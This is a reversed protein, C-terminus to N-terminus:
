RSSLLQRKLSLWENQAEDTLPINYLLRNIVSLKARKIQESPFKDKLLQIARFSKLYYDKEEDPLYESYEKIVSDFRDDVDPPENTKTQILWIMILLLIVRWKGFITLLFFIFIVFSKKFQKM